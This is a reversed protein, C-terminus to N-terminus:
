LCFRFRSWMWVSVGLPSDMYIGSLGSMNEKEMGCISVDGWINFYFFLLSGMSYKEQFREFERFVSSVQRCSLEKELTKIMCVISYQRNKEQNTQRYNEGFSLCSIIIM